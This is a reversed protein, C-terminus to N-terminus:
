RKGPGGNAGGGVEAARRLPTPPVCPLILLPPTPPPPPPQSGFTHAGFIASRIKGIAKEWLLWKPRSPPPLPHLPPPPLGGGGGVTYPRELVDRLDRLEATM